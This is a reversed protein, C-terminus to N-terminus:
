DSIHNIHNNGSRDKRWRRGLEDIVARYPSAQPRRGKLLRYAADVSLKRRLVLFALVVGTSRNIGATCHVYVRSYDQLLDALEDVARDMKSLFDAPNFDVIALRRMDVGRNAGARQLLDWRMGARNLDGDDQLSLLGGVGLKVLTELDETSVVQTGVLIDETVIALDM